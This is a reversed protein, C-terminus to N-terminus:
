LSISTASVQNAAIVPSAATVAWAALFGCAVGKLEKLHSFSEKPESSNRRAAEDDHYYISFIWWLLKDLDGSIFNLM